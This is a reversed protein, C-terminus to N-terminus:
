GFLNDFENHTGVWFWIIIGVGSAWLAINIM